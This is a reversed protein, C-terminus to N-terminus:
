KGGWCEHYPKYDQWEMFRHCDPCLNVLFCLGLWFYRLHTM